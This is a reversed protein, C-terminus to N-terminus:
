GSALFTRLYRRLSLQPSEGAQSHVEVKPKWWHVKSIDGGNTAKKNQLELVEPFLKWRGCVKPLLIFRYKQAM